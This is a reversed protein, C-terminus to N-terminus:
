ALIARVMRVGPLAEAVTAFEVTPPTHCFLRPLQVQLLEAQIRTGRPQIRAFGAVWFIQGSVTPALPQWMRERPEVLRRCPKEAAQLALLRNFFATTANKLKALHSAFSRV